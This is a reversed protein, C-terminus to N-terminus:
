SSFLGAARARLAAELRGLARELAERDLTAPGGTEVPDGPAWGRALAESPSPSATDAVGNALVAAAQAAVEPYLGRLEAARQPLSAGPVRVPQQWPREGLEHRRARRTRPIPTAAAQAGGAQPEPMSPLEDIAARYARELEVAAHELRGAELDERARLAHEECLLEVDRAGVLAAFREHPRESKLRKGPLLGGLRPPRPGQKALDIEKAESFAGDAVQEGTGWGIVIRTAHRRGITNVDPDAAAIRYAHLAGNLRVLASQLEREEDLASLWARAQQEASLSVADIVTAQTAGSPESRVVLIHEPEAGAEGRMVYRGDPPGLPFSVEFQVFVFLKAAL